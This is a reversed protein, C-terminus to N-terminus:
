SVVPPGVRHCPLSFGGFRGLRVLPVGALRRGEILGGRGLPDLLNQREQLLGVGIGRDRQMEGVRQLQQDRRDEGGLARIDPDVQDRRLQEPLVFGGGIPGAGIRLLDLLVDAGAAEVVVFGDADLPGRALDDLVEAALDRARHVLEGGQGADASLGGIDYQAIGKSDGGDGTVGM